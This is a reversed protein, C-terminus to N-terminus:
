PGPDEFPPDAHKTQECRESEDGGEGRLRGRLAGLLRGGGAGLGPGRHGADVQVRGGGGLELFERADALLHGRPDDLVALLVARELLDLLQHVHLADALLAEQLEAALERDPLLHQVRAPGESAPGKGRSTMTRAAPPNVNMSSRNATASM